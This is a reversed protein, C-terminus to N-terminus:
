LNNKVQKYFDLSAINKHKAEIMIDFDKLFKSAYENTINNWMMDSHAYTDKKNVKNFKLIKEMNFHENKPQGLDEFYERSQSYHITPRKGRWSKLILDIRPDKESIREGERCWHHHIDLVIPCYDILELCSDIGYKKEDNEITITNQAEKSLKPIIDIIGKAGKAGSIHVNCKFDQFEKGYEMMRILDAHYEFEDVSNIVVQPKDSALVCYQAPHMSVKVNNKRAKEGFIKLGSIIIDLIEKEKYFYSYEQYTYFPLIDSSLRLMHLNKPLTLVYDLLKNLSSINHSVITHIKEYQIERTQNSMWRVTSTKTNYSREIEELEKKEISRDDHRYKCAFGIKYM